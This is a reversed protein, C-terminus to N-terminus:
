FIFSTDKGKYSIIPERYFDEGLIFNYFMKQKKLINAIPM